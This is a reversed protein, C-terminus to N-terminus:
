KIQLCQIYDKKRLSNSIVISVDSVLTKKKNNHIKKNKKKNIKCVLCYGLRIFIGAIM